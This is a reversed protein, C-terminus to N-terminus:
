QIAKITLFIFKLFITFVKGKINQVVIKYNLLLTKRVKRELERTLTQEKLWTVM